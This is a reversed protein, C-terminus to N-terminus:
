TGLSRGTAARFSPRGASRRTDRLPADPGFPPVGESRLSTGRPAACCSGRHRGAIAHSRMWEYTQRDNAAIMGVPWDFLPSSAGEAFAHTSVLRGYEEMSASWFATVRAELVDPPVSMHAATHVLVVSRVLDAACLSRRFSPGGWRPESATSGVFASGRLSCKSTTCSRLSAIRPRVPLDTPSVSAAFHVTVRCGNFARRGRCREHATKRFFDGEDIMRPGSCHFPVPKM